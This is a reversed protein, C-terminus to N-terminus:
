QEDICVYAYPRLTLSLNGNRTEHRQWQARFEKPKLMALEANSEDLVRIAIKQPLNQLEVRQEENSLNALLVRTKNEQRLAMGTLKLPANHTGSAIQAGRFEGADALVHFLPFVSRPLSPFEPPSGSESEVVGRWGTTEYFTLSRVDAYAFERLAGLTWAAGFLSMQRADVNDPLEGPALERPAGTAVANFRPRLTIPSVSIPKDTCFQRASEVTTQLVELTEVISLNDFAHIQPNSSYTVFDLNDLTPRNRNLETFYVNTGSGLPINEDFAKLKERAIEIWKPSTSVEKEHFVLWQVVPPKTERLLEVLAHLEQEANDSLFIAVELQAGLSKAEESVRQLHHSYESKSLKLDVRLHSPQLLQLVATERASLKQNHSAVGLGLPPLTAIIEDGVSFQLVEDNHTSTVAPFEGQLELVVAQSVRTGKEIEVPYPLRLPTCFTKFSADTWNRQDETEFVDGTMLLKAWLNPQAEHTLARLDLFPADPKIYKPFASEEETGNAHLVHCRAGACEPPHLVCFGIRNKLFTTLAEGDMSFSITGSKEGRIEARWVFGIENQRHTATYSIRFSDGNDEITEDSIQIPVTGWNRDRVAVYVRRLIENEGLRVYRLDGNEYVLSLPGARLTQQAPLPENKGYRIVNTTLAM